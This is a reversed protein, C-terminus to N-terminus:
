SAPSQGGAPRLDHDLIGRYCNLFVLVIAM